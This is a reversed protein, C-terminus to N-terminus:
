AVRPNVCKAPFKWSLIKIGALITKAPFVKKWVFVNKFAGNTFTSLHAGAEENEEDTPAETAELTLATVEAHGM